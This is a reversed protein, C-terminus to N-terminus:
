LRDRLSQRQTQWEELATPPKDEARLTRAQEQIFSLFQESLNSDDDKFEHNNTTM